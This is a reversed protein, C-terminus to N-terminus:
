DAVFGHQHSNPNKAFQVEVVHPTPALKWTKLRLEIPLKDFVTFTELDVGTTSPYIAVSKEVEDSPRWM